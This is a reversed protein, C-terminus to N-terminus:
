ALDAKSVVVVGNASVYFRKRDAEPDEGIVTGEPLSVGKEVIARRVRCHPGVAVHHFLVSESIESYSDVRVFPSLVSRNVRGGSLICGSSVLSDVAIGARGGPEVAAFVFKPPPANVQMTHIPWGTDYLNLEPDVAVLDMNAAWYADITGVDRWYKSAKKNEDIFPFAFVRRDRMLRGILDRGIDRSSAPNAADADLAERLIAPRFTYIGMSALCLEPRGPVGAPHEPKEQFGVVRGGDATELVGFASAQACPVEVAAVVVDADHERHFRLMHRYDMKYIHDGALVLVIEPREQEIWRLNQYLADATGRYWDDGERHQPPLAEIFEGLTPRSIFRWCENLHHSLSRSMYQTLVLIKRLGSNVCNSLTLDVIRYIGGFHVAPKARERTLPGLREGKGGALVVTLVDKNELM